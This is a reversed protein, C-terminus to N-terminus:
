AAAGPLPSGCWRLISNRHLQHKEAARFGFRKRYRRNKQKARRKPKPPLERCCRAAGICYLTETCSISKPPVFALASAAGGIKRSQEANPNLRCSGLLLAACGKWAPKSAYRCFLRLLLAQESWISPCRPFFVLTLRRKAGKHITDRTSGFGANQKVGPPKAFHRIPHALARVVASPSPRLLSRPEVGVAM